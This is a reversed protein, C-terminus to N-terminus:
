NDARSEDAQLVAIHHVVVHAEVLRVKERTVDGVPEAPIALLVTGEFVPEPAVRLDHVDGPRVPM